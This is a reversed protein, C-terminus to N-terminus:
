SIIAFIKELDFYGLNKEKDIKVLADRAEEVHTGFTTKFIIVDEPNFERESSVNDLAVEEVLYDVGDLKEIDFSPAMRNPTFPRPTWLTEQNFDKKEAVLKKGTTSFREEEFNYIYYLSSEDKNPRYETIVGNTKELVDRCYYNVTKNIETKNSVNEYISIKKTKFAGALQVDDYSFVADEVDNVKKWTIEDKRGEKQLELLFKGDIIDEDDYSTMKETDRFKNESVTKLLETILSKKIYALYLSDDVRDHYEVYYTYYRSEKSVLSDGVTEHDYGDWLVDHTMTAGEVEYVYNYDYQLLEETEEETVDYLKDINSSAVTDEANNTKCGALVLLSLIGIIQKRSM